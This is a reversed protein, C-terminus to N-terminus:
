CVSPGTDSAEQRRSTFCARRDALLLCGNRISNLYPQAMAWRLREVIRGSNPQSLAVVIVGAHSEYMFPVTHYFDRDTTLLVADLKQAYEFVVTDNSGAIHTDRIDIVDHGSQSLLVAARRPFSEDLVFRM